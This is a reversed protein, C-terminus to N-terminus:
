SPRRDNGVGSTGRRGGVWARLGNQLPLLQNTLRGVIETTDDYSSYAEEVGQRLIEITRRKKFTEKVIGAHHVINAATPIANAMSVLYASGGVDELEGKAKLLDGLTIIDIPEKRDALEVM